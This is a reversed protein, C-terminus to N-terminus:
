ERCPLGHKKHQFTQATYDNHKQRYTSRTPEFVAVIRPFGSTAPCVTVATTSSTTFSLFTIVSFNLLLFFELFMRPKRRCSVINRTFSIVKSASTFFSRPKHVSYSLLSKRVASSKILAQLYYEGGTKAKCGNGQVLREPYM